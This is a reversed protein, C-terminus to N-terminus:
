PSARGSIVLVKKGGHIISDVAQRRRQGPPPISMRYYMNGDHGQLIWAEAVNDTDCILELHLRAGDDDRGYLHQRFRERYGREAPARCEQSPTSCIPTSQLRGHSNM